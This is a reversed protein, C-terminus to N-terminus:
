GGVVVVVVVCGGGGRELRGLETGWAASGAAGGAKVAADGGEEGGDAGRVGRQLAERCLLAIDLAHISSPRM